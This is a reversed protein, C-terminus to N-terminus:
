LRLFVDPKVTGKRSAVFTAKTAENQPSRITVRGESIVDLEDALRNRLKEKQPETLDDMGGEDLVVVEVGRSRAERISAKLKPNILARGRIEDRLAAELYTAEKRDAELLHGSAIKELLPLAGRLTENIREAREQRRASQVATAMETQKAEELYAATRIASNRLGVSLAHATAVLAVAGSIGSNFIADFGGWILVQFTATATGLWAIIKHQRIATVAMLTSIASVYWTHFTGVDSPGLSLNVLQPVAFALVLNAIGLALPMRLQNSYFISTLGFILYLCVAAVEEDRFNSHAMGLIAAGAPNLVFLLAIAVVFWRPLRIM